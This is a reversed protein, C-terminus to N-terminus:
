RGAKWQWIIWSLKGKHSNGTRKFNEPEKLVSKKMKISNLKVIKNKTTM